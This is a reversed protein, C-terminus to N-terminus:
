HLVRHEAISASADLQEMWPEALARIKADNILISRMILGKERREDPQLDESRARERLQAILVACVGEYQVVQDWNEAQAAALMKSSSEEISKYYEMLMRSM